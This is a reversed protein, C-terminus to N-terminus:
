YGLMSRSGAGPEVTGKGIGADIDLQRILLKVDTVNNCGECTARYTSSNYAVDINGTAKDVKEGSFNFFKPSLTNNIFKLTSNPRGFNLRLGDAEVTEVMGAVQPTIKILNEALGKKNVLIGDSIELNGTSAIKNLAITNDVYFKLKKIDLGNDRLKFFVERTFPVLVGLDEVKPAQIKPAEVVPATVVKKKPACSFLVSTGIVVASFINLFKNNM